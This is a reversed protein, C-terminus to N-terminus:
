DMSELVDEIEQVFRRWSPLDSVAGDLNLDRLLQSRHNHFRNNFKELRRGTAESAKALVERLFSKPDAMREAERYSPLDLRTRGNPNAAVRRIEVEDLILWAETMRVPIIAVHPARYDCELVATAIERRRPEVGANDCDRHVAILDFQGGLAIGARVKDEVRNGVREELLGYDPVTVDMLVGRRAAITEIHGAIGADSSGECVFLCRV